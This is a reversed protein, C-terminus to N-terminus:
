TPTACARSSSRTWQRPRRYPPATGRGVVSLCDFVACFVCVPVKCMAARKPVPEEMPIWDWKKGWVFPTRWVLTDGMIGFEYPYHWLRVDQVKQDAIVDLM